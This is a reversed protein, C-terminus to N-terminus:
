DGLIERELRTATRDEIVLNVQPADGPIFYRAVVKHVIRNHVDHRDLGKAVDPEVVLDGVAPVVGGYASLPKSGFRRLCGHDDDYFLHVYTESM